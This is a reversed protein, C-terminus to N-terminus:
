FGLLVFTIYYAIVGGVVLFAITLGIVIKMFRPTLEGEDVYAALERLDM